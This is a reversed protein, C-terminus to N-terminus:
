SDTVAYRADVEFIGLTDTINYSSEFGAQGSDFSFLPLNSATTSAAFCGTEAEGSFFFFGRESQTLGTECM